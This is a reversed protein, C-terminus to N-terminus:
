KKELVPEPELGGIGQFNVRIGSALILDTPQRRNLRRYQVYMDRIVDPVTIEKEAILQFGIGNFKFEITEEPIFSVLPLTEMLYKKTTPVKFKKGGRYYKDGPKLNDPSTEGLGEEKIIEKLEEVKQKLKSM